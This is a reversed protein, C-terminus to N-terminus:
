QLNFSGGLDYDMNYDNPRMNSIDIDNPGYASSGDDEYELMDGLHLHKLSQTM